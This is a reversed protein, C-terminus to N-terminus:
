IVTIVERWSINILFFHRWVYGFTGQSFFQVQNLIVSGGLFDSFFFAKCACAHLHSLACGM